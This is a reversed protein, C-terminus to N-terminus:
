YGVLHAMIGPTLDLMEAVCQLDARFIEAAYIRGWIVDGSGCGHGAVDEGLDVFRSSAAALYGEFLRDERDKVM